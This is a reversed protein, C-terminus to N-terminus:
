FSHYLAGFQADIANLASCAQGALNALVMIAGPICFLGHRSNGVIQARGTYQMTDLVKVVLLPPNSPHYVMASAEDVGIM